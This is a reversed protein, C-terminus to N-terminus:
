EATVEKENDWDVWEDMIDLVDQSKHMSEEVRDMLTDKFDEAIFESIREENIMKRLLKNVEFRMVESFKGEELRNSHVWFSIAGCRNLIIKFLYIHSKWKKWTSEDDMNYESLKEWVKAKIGNFTELGSPTLFSERETVILNIEIISLTHRIDSFIEYTNKSIKM